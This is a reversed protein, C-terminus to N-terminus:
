EVPDVSLFADMIEQPDFTEFKFIHVKEPPRATMSIRYSKDYYALCIRVMEKIDGSHVAEVAKKTNEGGLKKKIRLVASELEAASFQGYEEALRTVRVERPLEIVYLAAAQMQDWMAHPLHCRGITRSEDEIWVPDQCHMYLDYALENEFQQQTPIRTSGLRGFSSGKHDAHYELDLVSHGKAAMYHLLETKGTGTMGGIVRYECAKDFQDLAWNRYRKYGGELVKTKVGALGMIWAMSESRKGGRWCHVLLENEEAMKQGQRFFDKMKPIMIDLGLEVAQVNGVQKYVTGVEAREDNDFLPFSVAGPIHGQEYEGPSRVDLVPTQASKQLFEEITVAQAM